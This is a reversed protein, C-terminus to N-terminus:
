SAPVEGPGIPPAQVQGRRQREVWAPHHHYAWAQDVTGTTMAGIAGEMGLSGIYIHALIVAILVVATIAHVYQAIQMGQLGVVVFPFLMIVGSVSLLVGGFIVSWFLLKQGANFREAPPQRGGFLGGGARLWAADYRDPINDKVWLVFMLLLALMFPWAIFNHAFKAWQSWDAFAEAGILPMILRKGFVYNLGTVALVIFCTAMMWHNLREFASFRVVARGSREEPTPRIRGRWLYFVLLIAIMGLLAIAGIWPLWREHFSQYSRGQPQELMALQPNPVTVRGSLRDLEQFLKQETVSSATPNSGSPSKAQGGTQADAPMTTFALLLALGVVALSPLPFRRPFPEASM